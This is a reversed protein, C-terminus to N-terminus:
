QQSQKILRLSKPIMFIGVAILITFIFDLLDLFALTVTFATGGPTMLRIGEFVMPSFVVAWPFVIISVPFAWFSLGM